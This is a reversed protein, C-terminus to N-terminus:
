DNQWKVKILCAEEERLALICGLMQVAVPGSLPAKFLVRVSQGARFGMELMRSKMHSDMISSIEGIQNPLMDNITLPM